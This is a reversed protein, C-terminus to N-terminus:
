GGPAAPAPDRASRPWAGFEAGQFTTSVIVDIGGGQEYGAQNGPVRCGGRPKSPSRLETGVYAGLYTALTQSCEACQMNLEKSSTAMLTVLPAAPHLVHRSVQGTAEGTGKLLSTTPLTGKAPPSFATHIRHCRPARAGLVPCSGWQGWSM